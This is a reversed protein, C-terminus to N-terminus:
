VDIRRAVLTAIYYDHHLQDAQDALAAELEARFLLLEDHTPVAAEIMPGAWAFISAVYRKAFDLRGENSALEGARMYPNAMWQLNLWELKMASLEEFAKCLEKETRPRAPFTFMQRFGSPITGRAERAALLRDLVEMLVDYTYRGEESIAPHSVVMLGGVKLELARASIIALWDAAAHMDWAARVTTDVGDMICFVRGPRPLESTDSLWHYSTGSVSVDVSATPLVQQHFSGPAALLRLRSKKEGRPASASLLEAVPRGRHLQGLPSLINSAAEWDNSPLDQLVVDVHPPDDLAPLLVAEILQRTALGDAAGHDALVIPLPRRAGDASREILAERVIPQLLQFCAQQSLSNTAYEGDKAM